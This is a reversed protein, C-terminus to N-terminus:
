NYDDCSSLREWCLEMPSGDAHLVPKEDCTTHKLCGGCDPVQGRCAVFDRNYCEELYPDYENGNCKEWIEEKKICSIDPCTRGTPDDCANRHGCAKNLFCFHTEPNYEKDDCLSLIKMGQGESSSSPTEAISSSSPTKEVSQGEISGSIDKPDCSMTIAMALSIGAALLFRNTKASNAM